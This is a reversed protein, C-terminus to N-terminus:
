KGTLPGPNLEIDGSLLLLKRLCVNLYPDNHILNSSGGEPLVVSQLCNVDTNCQIQLYNINGIGFYRLPIFNQPTNLKTSTMRTYTLQTRIWLILVTSISVACVCCAYMICTCVYFCM